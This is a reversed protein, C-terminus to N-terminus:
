GNLSEERRPDQQIEVAAQEPEDAVRTALFILFRKDPALAHLRRQEERAFALSRYRRTPSFEEPCWIMWWPSDPADKEWRRRHYERRRREEGPSPKSAPAAAPAPPTPAAAVTTTRARKLKIVPRPASM